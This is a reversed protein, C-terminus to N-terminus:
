HVEEKRKGRGDDITRQEQMQFEKFEEMGVMVTLECPYAQKGLHRRIINRHKNTQHPLEGKTMVINRLCTAPNHSDYINKISRYYDAHHRRNKSSFVGRQAPM